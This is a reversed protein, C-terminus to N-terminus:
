RRWRGPLRIRLICHATSHSVRDCTYNVNTSEVAIPITIRLDAPLLERAVKLHLELFHLQALAVVDHVRLLGDLHDVLVGDANGRDEAGRQVALELVHLHEVVQERLLVCPCPLWKGLLCEDQVASNTLANASM